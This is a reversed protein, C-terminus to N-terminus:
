NKGWPEISPLDLQYEANIIESPINGRALKPFNNKVEYERKSSVAFFQKDYELMDIYGATGLKLIFAEQAAPYDRLSDIVTHVLRYLTIAGIATPACKDIRYVILNGPSPGDLQEISSISVSPSAAGTAKIEYWVEDYVFDQDGGDPGMWGQLALHPDTGSEITEKLFMIEAILGKQANSGLVASNKHDLLKMWAAYRRLVKRLAEKRGTEWQSFEIIDSSMTIFVDEQAANLLTFSIAYRGDKRINCSAEISKSSQIKDAPVDSVIVLSKCGRSAFRVFWDLPHKIALQLSGGDYYNISKWKGRLEAEYTNM